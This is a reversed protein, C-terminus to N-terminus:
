LRKHNLTDGLLDVLEAFLDLAVFVKIVDQILRLDGVGLEVLEHPPELLELGLV